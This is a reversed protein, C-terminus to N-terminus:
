EEDEMYDTAEPVPVLTARATNICHAFDVCDAPATSDIAERLDSGLRWGYEAETRTWATNDAEEILDGDICNDADVVSALEGDIAKDSLLRILETEYVMRFFRQAECVVPNLFRGDANRTLM